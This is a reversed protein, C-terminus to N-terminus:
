HSHSLCKLLDMTKLCSTRLYKIHPLWSLKPDLTMGLFKTDQVQPIDATHLKLDLPPFAGRKRTFHMAVTKQHSFTFGHSTAWNYSKKIALQIRRTASPLSASRAFIAFDDVYLSSEIHHPLCSPLGNIALAFLCCSLVSGQPVGEYQPFPDSFTNNIKVKILRNSLFNQIFIPLNGELNLDFLTQLIHRKWTTDYAKQLDFFVAVVHEGKAFTTKIYTDIHALIDTTSRNNRFGYQNPHLYRNSELHHVLRINVMREMLKCLCSTLAIPRYNQPDHKDKGQKHFPITVATRWASPFSHDSWIKNFFSLIFSLSTDPLNSIM